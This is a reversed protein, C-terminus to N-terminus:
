SRQGSRNKIHIRGQVPQYEMPLFRQFAHISPLLPNAANKIENSVYLQYDYIRYIIRDSNRPNLIMMLDDTNRMKDSGIFQYVRKDSTTVTRIYDLEIPGISGPSKYDYTTPTIKRIIEPDGFITVTVNPDNLVYLMQTVESDLFDFFTAHRWQVYDSYYTDPPAFDFENFTKQDAPLRRYSDDLFSKIEDDKYNAMATKFLSMIKTLQNVNYLLGLDKVEEPSITTNIPMGDPIEIYSSNIKWRVSCTPRTASSTDLRTKLKVKTVNGYATYITFKNKNMSASLTEKLEVIENNSDATVTEINLPQIISREDQDGYGPKFDLKTPFWVGELDEELIEHTWPDEEGAKVVATPVYIGSIHTVISLNDIGNMGGLKNVFDITAQEPLEIDEEIFPAAKNIAATMENQNKWMDIENGLADVLIRTEMQMTFRPEVATVHSIADGKDFVMNMLINKHIPLSMGIVPNYDALAAQEAMCEVDNTFQEEMDNNFEKIYNEDLCPDSMDQDIVNECFYNKLAALANKKRLVKTPEEYIDRGTENLINTALHMYDQAQSYMPDKAYSRGYEMPKKRTGGIM